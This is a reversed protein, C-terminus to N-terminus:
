FSPSHPSWLVLQQSVLEIFLMNLLFCSHSTRVLINWLVIAYLSCWGALSCPSFNCEWTLQEFVNAAVSEMPFLSKAYTSTSIINLHHCNQLYLIIVYYQNAIHTSHVIYLLIWWHPFISLALMKKRRLLFNYTQSLLLYSRLYTM